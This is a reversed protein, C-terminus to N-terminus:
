LNCQKALVLGGNNFKNTSIHLRLKLEINFRNMYKWKQVSSIQKCLFAICFYYTKSQKCTWCLWFICAFLAKGTLLGWIGFKILRLSMQMLKVGLFFSSCICLDQSLLRSLFPVWPIALLQQLSVVIISVFLLLLHFSLPFYSGLM